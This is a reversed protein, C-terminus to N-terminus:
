FQFYIFTHNQSAGFFIIILIAAYYMTWRVPQSFSRLLNVLSHRQQYFEAIFLLFVSAIVTLWKTGSFSIGLILHTFEEITHANTFAQTDMMSQWGSTLHRFIYFADHVSAARFFIWALSVLSFTILQRLTRAIRNAPPQQIKLLREAVLYVGHLAGWIIFTYNAGHWLGSLLFVIFLNRLTLFKGFRSGGLPIYVYDRFWSSLSIHWRKWFETVTSAFYPSRFNQMLSFGMVSAAGLAIDCYGSFDCYIQISFFLVAIALAPGAFNQPESFVPDAFQSLTDAIVVKKFFGWLMRQLGYVIRGQQPNNKRHLQPLLNQPREIPGAVLQPYFLVYLSYVAPDREAKQNGRYVEITYSLAQFTHFSLGIPLIINLYPINSGMGGAQLALNFNRLIFDGYKFFSLIGINAIISCVLFLKRRSGESREIYIGAYYDIFITFVLILLYIPIFAMYFYCSALLLWYVQQKQKLAFYILTVLPFFVLFHFSNFLM